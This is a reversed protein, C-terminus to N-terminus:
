DGGGRGGGGEKTKLFGLPGFVQICGSSGGGLAQLFKYVYVFTGCHRTM